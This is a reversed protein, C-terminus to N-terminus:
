AGRGGPNRAPTSCTIAPTEKGAVKEPRSGIRPAGGGKGEWTSVGPTSRARSAVTSTWLMPTPQLPMMVPEPKGIRALWTSVLAWTTAPVRFV